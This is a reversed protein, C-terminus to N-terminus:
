LMRLGDNGGSVYREIRCAFPRQTTTAVELIKPWRNVMLQVQEWYSNGTRSEAILFIGLESQMYIERQHLRNHINKDQTIYCSETGKTIAFLDEDSLGGGFETLVSKVDVQKVTKLKRHLPEQLKQFGEAFREPLNEDFYIIM